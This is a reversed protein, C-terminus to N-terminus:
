LELMWKDGSETKIKRLRGFPTDLADVNHASALENLQAEVKQLERVMDRKQTILKLYSEVITDLSDGTEVSQVPVTPRTTREPQVAPRKVPAEATQSAQEVAPAKDPATAQAAPKKAPQPSTAKQTSDIQKKIKIIFEDDAHLLPSPYSGAQERFECYCGVAPTIDSQWLRIKPCSVPYGHKRQVWKETIRFDYNTTHSIIEHLKQRGAEGVYVLVNLLTLRDIHSLRHEKEAKDQLYRLVNCGALIKDIKEGEEKSVTSADLRATSRTQEIADLFKKSSLPEINQLFAFVDEVPEGERSLFECRRHTLKHVGMPVKILPGLAKESVTTQGPFIERHLGPPPPGARTLIKRAFQLVRRAPQPEAFFVWLHVGKYGSDEPVATIGFDALVTLLLHADSWVFDRWEELNKESDVIDTRVQRTVDIDFVLFNVTNDMRMLYIALTHDGRWHAKVDEAKMPSRICAYGSKGEDNLWQHAHVGERGNFLRIFREVDKDSFRQYKERDPIVARPKEGAIKKLAPDLEFAKNLAKRAAGNLAFNKLATGLTFQYLAINPELQVAKQLYRIAQDHRHRKLHYLGIQFAAEPDNPEQRFATLYSDMAENQLGLLDCLVGWQFNLKADQPVAVSDATLENRATEIDGLQFALAAKILRRPLAQDGPITDDIQTLLEKKDQTVIHFYNLWGRLIGELKIRMQADTYEFAKSLLGGIRRDLREFAPRDPRKGKEDFYFGLFSFGDKLHVVTTKEAKFTLQLKALEEKTWEFATRVKEEEKDLVLINDSYRVYNWQARILRDDLQHLYVNSLLPSIPLGQAIGQNNESDFSDLLLRILRLIRKDDITKGLIELLLDRNVSDFFNEIDLNLAWLRGRQLNREVRDLAKKASLGPRYAYSCNHFIKEYVPQLVQVLAQAVIRDRVTPIHLIRQTGDEKKMTFTKLALPQFSGDILTGKLLRLKEHINEEFQQVTVKDVGAAGANARVKGWAIAIITDSTLQDFLTSM